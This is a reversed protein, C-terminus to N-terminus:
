SARPRRRWSGCTGKLYPLRCPEASSPGSLAALQGARSRRGFSLDRCPGRRRTPGGVSPGTPTLRLSRREDAALPVRHQRVSPRVPESAPPAPSARPERRRKRERRRSAFRVHPPAPGPLRRPIIVAHAGVQLRGRRFRPAEAKEDPPHSEDGQQQDGRRCPEPELMRERQRSVLEVQKEPEERAGRGVRPGEDDPRAPDEMEGREEQDTNKVQFRDRQRARWSQERRPTEEADAGAEGEQVRDREGPHTRVDEVVDAKAPQLGMVAEVRVGVEDPLDASWAVLHEPVDVGGQSEPRAGVAGHELREGGAEHEDGSAADLRREDKQLEESEGELGDGAEEDPLEGLGLVLDNCREGEDAAREHEEARQGAGM